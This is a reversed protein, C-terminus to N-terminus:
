NLLLRLHDEVVTQIHEAVEEPTMNDMFMEMLANTMEPIKPAITISCYSFNTSASYDFPIQSVVREIGPWYNDHMADQLYALGEINNPINFTDVIWSQVVPDTVMFVIFEWALDQQASNRAISMNWDGMHSSPRGAHPGEQITPMPLVMFRDELGNAKIQNYVGFATNTLHMALYNNETAVMTRDLSEVFDPSQFAGLDNIFEIARISEPTTYDFVTDALTDGWEITRAGWLRSAWIYNFNASGPQYLSIGYNQVGTVPNIGTTSSAVALMEEPTWDLGPVPVGWDELIQLDLVVTAPANTISVGFPVVQSLPYGDVETRRLALAAIQDELEPTAEVFRTLPEVVYTISAGHIIIDVDGQLAATTLAARWGDWPISEIVLEVDPNLEAWRNVVVEYGPRTLGTILDLAGTRTVEAFLGPGLMRLTRTEGEAVEQQEVPAVPGAGAGAPVAGGDAPDGGCAALVLLLVLICAVSKKM